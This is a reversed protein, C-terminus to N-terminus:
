TIGVKKKGGRGFLAGGMNVGFGGVMSPGGRNAWKGAGRGTTHSMPGDKVGMTLNM